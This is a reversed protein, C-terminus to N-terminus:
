VHVRLDVTLGAADDAVAGIRGVPDEADHEVREEVPDIRVRPVVAEVRVHARELQRQVTADILVPREAGGEELRRQLSQISAVAIKSGRRVPGFPSSVGRRSGMEVAVVGVERPDCWAAIKARAQEVLEQRHALVLVPGKALRAIEAFLVTKGTGTPLVVLVRRRGGAYCARVAELAATQYPRLGM